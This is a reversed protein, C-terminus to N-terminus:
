SQTKIYGLETLITRMQELVADSSRLNPKISPGVDLGILNCADKTAVPFSSLNFAMRFPNLKFQAERAGDLDGAMYKDYIEVVLEPVVNATSAVCGAAGYALSGLIMVDRGAFIKFGKDRTLRLYEATLTMDGSSDKMGVINPIEALRLLLKVSINNKVKDPNNYLLVPLQVADAITKFHLFLEEENPTLFMPPLITIAQAGAEEAMLAIKVCERTTIAGIGMYVPVRGASQDLIITLARQQQAFDLGFFEGNSGMALIGHVGGQIVYDVMRRLGAEEVREEDDIPTVIPSIVGKIFDTNM